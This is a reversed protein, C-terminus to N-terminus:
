SLKVVGSIEATGTSGDFTSEIAGHGSLQAFDGTGGDFRIQGKTTFGTEGFLTNWHKHAVFTDGDPCTYTTDVLINFRLAHENGAFHHAVDVYTGSPCLPGTATLPNPCPGTGFSETITFPEPAAAEAAPAPVVLLVGATLLASTLKKIM